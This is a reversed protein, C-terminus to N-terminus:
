RSLMKKQVEVRLKDVPPGTKNPGVSYTDFVTSAFLNAIPVHIAEELKEKIRGAFPGLCAPQYIKVVRSDSVCCAVQTASVTVLLM